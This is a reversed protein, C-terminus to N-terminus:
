AKDPSLTLARGSDVRVPPSGDTRRLFTAYDPGGGQGSEYFLVMSGDPSIGEVASFDLWSLDCDEADGVRRFLVQCRLTAREVFVVGGPAVDYFVLWCMGSLVSRVRGDLSLARLSNDAGV